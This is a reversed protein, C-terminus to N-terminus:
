VKRRPKGRRENDELRKTKAQQQEVMEKAVDSGAMANFAKEEADAEADSKHAKKADPEGDNDSDSYSPVPSKPVDTDM